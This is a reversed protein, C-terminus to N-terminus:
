NNVDHLEHSPFQLFTGHLLADECPMMMATTIGSGVQVGLDM